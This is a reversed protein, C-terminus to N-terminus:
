HPQAAPTFRASSMTITGDKDITARNTTLSGRGELVIRIPGELLSSGDVGRTLKGGEILV